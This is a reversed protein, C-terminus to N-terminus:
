NNLRQSINKVLSIMQQNHTQANATGLAQANANILFAEAVVKNFTLLNVESTDPDDTDGFINLEDGSLLATGPRRLVQKAVNLNGADTAHQLEQGGGLQMIFFILGVGLIALVLATVIVLALVAGKRTRRSM